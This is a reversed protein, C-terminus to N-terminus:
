RVVTVYGKVAEGSPLVLVYFYTGDAVGDARWDNLYDTALLIRRGWRSYIALSSGPPLNGFVLADNHGDGNPTIINPAELLKPLTDCDLLAIHVTDGVSGCPHPATAWFIGEETVSFTAGGSGDQWQFLLGEGLAVLVLTDGMCIITDPGLDVFPPSIYTVNVTDAATGCLNTATVNYIGAETVTFGSDTSGDQGM